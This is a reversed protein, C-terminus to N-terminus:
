QGAFDVGLRRSISAGSVVGTQRHSAGAAVLRVSAGPRGVSGVGVGDGFSVRFGKIEVGRITSVTGGLSMADTILKLLSGTRWPIAGPYSGGVPPSMLFFTSVLLLLTLVFSLLSLLSRLRHGLSVQTTIEPTGPM